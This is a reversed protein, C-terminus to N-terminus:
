SFRYFDNTPPAKSVSKPEPKTKETISMNTAGLTTLGPLRLPSWNSLSVSVFLPHPLTWSIACEFFLCLRRNEWVKWQAIIMSCIRISMPCLIEATPKWIPSAQPLTDLTWHMHSELLTTELANRGEANCATFGPVFCVWFCIVASYSKVVATPVWVTAKSHYSSMFAHVSRPLFKKLYTTQVTGSKPSMMWAHTNSHGCAPGQANFKEKTGFPQLLIETWLSVPVGGPCLHNPRGQHCQSGATCSGQAM